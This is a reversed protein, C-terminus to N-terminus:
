EEGTKTEHLQKWPIPDGWKLSFAAAYPHGNGGYKRALTSVDTTEDACRLSVRMGWSHVSAVLAIPPLKKSLLNGVPSTFQKSTSALYCNFGEFEVLEAQHMIQQVVINKHEAYKTGIDRLRAYQDPDDLERSLNEWASFIHPVTYIYNLLAESDPLSFKYLDGQEIQQLLLPVQVEPHFYKWAIVSGSNEGTYRYEPMSTIVGEVGEHHDLVTLAEANAVYTDMIEKPYCFDVFYLHADTFSEPAPPPIDRSLPIYEATDGFKKWAAYAGGFGDPCNGHYLIVIRPSPTM